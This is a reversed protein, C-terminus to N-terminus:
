VAGPRGAGGAGRLTMQVQVGDIMLHANLSCPAEYLPDAQASKNIQAGNGSNIFQEPADDPTQAVAMLAQTKRALLQALKHKCRGEPARYFADECACSGNVSYRKGETSASAVTWHGTDDQFVSGRRVLAVACSLREHLAEPLAQRALLEAQELAQTFTRTTM